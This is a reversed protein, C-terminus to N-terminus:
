LAEALFQSLCSLPPGPLDSYTASFASSIQNKRGAATAGM